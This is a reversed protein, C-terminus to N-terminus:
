RKVKENCTYSSSASIALFSAMLYSLSTSITLRASPAFFSLRFAGAPVRAAKKGGAEDM